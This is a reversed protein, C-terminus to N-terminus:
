VYCALLNPTCKSTVLVLSKVKTSYMISYLHWSAEHNMVGPELRPVGDSSDASFNQVGLRESVADCYAFRMTGVKVAIGSDDDMAGKVGVGYWRCGASYLGAEPLVYGVGRTGAM